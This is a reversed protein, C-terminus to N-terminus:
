PCTDGGQVIKTYPDEIRTGEGREQEARWRECLDLAMAVVEEPLDKRRIEGDRWAQFLEDDYGYQMVAQQVADHVVGATRDQAEADSFDFESDYESAPVSPRPSKAPPSSPSPSRPPAREHSGSTGSPGAGLASLRNKNVQGAHRGEWGQDVRGEKAQQRERDREWQSQPQVIFQKGM